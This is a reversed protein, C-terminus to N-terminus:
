ENVIRGSDAQRIIEALRGATLGDAEPLPENPDRRELLELANRFNRRAERKRGGKLGLNGLAFYALIHDHDIYLTRKFATEAEGPRGEEDLIAALLYHSQARLRDLAIAAECCERAESFRGMSAYSRALLEMVDAGREGEAIGSARAAALEYRGQEYLACAERYILDRSEAAGKGTIEGGAPGPVSETVPHPWQRAEGEGAAPFIAAVPPLAAPEIHSGGSIAALAGDAV